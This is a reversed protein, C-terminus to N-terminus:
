GAAVSTLALRTLRITVASAAKKEAHGSAGAMLQPIASSVAARVPDPKPAPLPLTFTFSILIAIM